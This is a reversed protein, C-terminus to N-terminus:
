NNKQKMGFRFGISLNILPNIEPDPMYAVSLNFVPYIGLWKNKIFSRLDYGLEAIGGTRHIVHKNTAMLSGFADHMFYHFAIEHNHVGGIGLYFGKSLYLRYTLSLSGAEREPSVIYLEKGRVDIASQKGFTKFFFGGAGYVGGVFSNAYAGACYGIDIYVKHTNTSEQSFVCFNNFLVIAIVLKVQKM